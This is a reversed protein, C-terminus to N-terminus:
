AGGTISTSKGCVGIWGKSEGAVGTGGATNVGFVGFGGSTSQSIGEVGNWTKGEGRVGVAGEARVGWLEGQGLVGLSSKGTATGTIAVSNEGAVSENIAM